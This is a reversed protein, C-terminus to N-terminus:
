LLGLFVALSRDVRVMLEHDLAEIRAGLTDRPVTVIKDIMIQSIRQLGNSSSPELTLRLLPADLLDAAKALASEGGSPIAVLGVAFRRSFAVLDRLEM